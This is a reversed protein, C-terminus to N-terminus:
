KKTKKEVETSEREQEAATRGASEEKKVGGGDELGNKEAEEM